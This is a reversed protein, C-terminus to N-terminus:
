VYRSGSALDFRTIIAVTSQADQVADKAQRHKLHHRISGTVGQTLQDIVGAHRPLFSLWLLSLVIVSAVMLRYRALESERDTDDM